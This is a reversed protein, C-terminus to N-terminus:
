ASKRANDADLLGAVDAKTMGKVLKLQNEEARDDEANRTAVEAKLQKATWETFPKEPDGPGDEGLASVAKAAKDDLEKAAARAEEVAKNSDVPEPDEVSTNAPSGGAEKAKALDEAQAIQAPSGLVGHLDKTPDELTANEGVGPQGSQLSAVRQVQTQALQEAHTIGVDGRNETAALAKALAEEQDFRPDNSVKTGDPMLFTVIDTTSM